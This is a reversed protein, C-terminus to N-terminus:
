GVHFAELGPRLAAPIDAKEIGKETMRVFVRAERGEAVLRRDQRFRYCLSIGSTGIRTVAVEIDLRDGYSAPAKFACGADVLPTGQLGFAEELRRQDFGLAATLEHFASDMWRFYAPYFVIGAPDCDGWDVGRSTAFPAM